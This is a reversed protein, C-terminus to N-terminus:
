FPEKVKKAGCLEAAHEFAKLLRDPLTSNTFLLTIEKKQEKEVEGSKYYKTTMPQPHNFNLTLWFKKDSEANTESWAGVKSEGLALESLNLEYVESPAIDVGSKIGILHDTVSVYLTPNEFGVNSYSLTRVAITNDPATFKYTAESGIIKDKIFDITEALSASSEATSKGGLRQKLGVAALKQEPPLGLELARNLESLASDNQGTNSYALGLDYHVLANRPALKEAQLLEKQASPWDSKAIATVANQYHQKAQATADGSQSQAMMKTPGGLSWLAIYMFMIVPAFVGQAFSEFM